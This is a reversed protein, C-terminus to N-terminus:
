KDQNSRLYMIQNEDWNLMKKWQGYSLFVVNIFWAYSYSNYLQMNSEPTSPVSCSLSIVQAKHVKEFKVWYKLATSIM